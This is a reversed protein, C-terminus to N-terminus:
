RRGPPASDAMVFGIQKWHYRARARRTTCVGAGHAEGPPEAPANRSVRCSWGILRPRALSAKFARRVARCSTPGQISVHSVWIVPRTEGHRVDDSEFSRCTRVSGAVASGVGVTVLATLLAILLLRSFM